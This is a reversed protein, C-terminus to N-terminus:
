PGGLRPDHEPRWREAIRDTMVVDDITECLPYRAEEASLRTERKLERFSMDYIFWSAAPGKVTHTSKLRVPGRFGSADVKRALRTLRDERKAWIFDVFAHFGDRSGALVEEATLIRQSTAHFAFTWSGGFMRIREIVLAYHYRAQALVAVLDGPSVQIV